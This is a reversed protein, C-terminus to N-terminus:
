KYDLGTIVQKELEKLNKFGYIAYLGLYKLPIQVKNKPNKFQYCITLLNNEWRDYFISSQLLVGVKAEFFDNSGLLKNEELLEKPILKWYPPYINYKSILNKEYPHLYIKMSLNHKKAIKIINKLIINERKAYINNKYKGEKLAEKNYDAYLGDKRAWFASSFFGIDYKFNELKKNILFENGTVLYNVNTDNIWGIKQFAEYEEKYLTNAFCVQVNELYSYRLYENIMNGIIYDVKIKKINSSYLSILYMQPLYSYFMYIKKPKLILIKTRMYYYNSFQLLSFNLPIFIIKFISLLAYTYAKIFVWLDSWSNIMIISKFRREILGIDTRNDYYKIYQNRLPYSSIDDIMYREKQEYKKYRLLLPMSLVRLILMLRDKLFEKTTLHKDVKLYFSKFVRYDDSGIETYLWKKFYKLFM